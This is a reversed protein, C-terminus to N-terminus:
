KKKRQAPKNTSSKPKPADTNATVSKNCVTFLKSHFEYGSEMAVKALHVMLVFVLAIVALMTFVFGPNVWGAITVSSLWTAVRALTAPQFLDM